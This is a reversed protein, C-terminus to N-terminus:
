QKRWILLNGGNLVSTRCRIGKQKVMKFVYSRVTESSVNKPIEIHLAKGIELEPVQDLIAQVQDKLHPVKDVTKVKLLGNIM